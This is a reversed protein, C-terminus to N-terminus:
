CIYGLKVSTESETIEWGYEKMFHKLFEKDDMTYDSQKIGGDKLSQLMAKEADELSLYVGLVDMDKDYSDHYETVIWIKMGGKEWDSM